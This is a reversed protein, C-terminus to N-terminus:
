STLLLLQFKELPFPLGIEVQEFINQAPAPFIYFAKDMGMMLNEFTPTSTNRNGHQFRRVNESFDLMQIISGCRLRKFRRDVCFSYEQLLKACYAVVNALHKHSVIHRRIQYIHSFDNLLKPLITVMGSIKSVFRLLNFFSCLMHAEKMQKMFLIIQLEPTMIFGMLVFNDVTTVNRAEGIQIRSDIIRRQSIRKNIANQFDINRFSYIIPNILPTMVGYMVSLVRKQENYSDSGPLIYTLIVTGFFLTVVILHSGCTSFAKQRGKKSPIRLVVRLIYIYSLLTLMFSGVIVSGGVFISVLQNPYTDRCSLKLLSPIDCFFHRILHDKCFPLMATYVTHVLSNLFGIGWSLCLLQVCLTPNMCTSYFLPQCIAVYRDYAMVTLLVCESSGLAVFFFMQTFCGVFSIAKHDQLLNRLGNPTIASTYFIELFSLNALFFYMPKHLCSEQQIIVIIMLNGTITLAYIAFFAVFLVLQSLPTTVLGLLMFEELHSVNKDSWSRKEM